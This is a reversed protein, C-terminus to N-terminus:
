FEEEFGDEMPSQQMEERKKKRDQNFFYSFQLSFFPGRPKFQSYTHFSVTESEGTRQVSNLLNRISLTLNANNRIFSQSVSFDVHYMSDFSGQPTKRPGHYRFRLQAKYRRMLNIMTSARTEWSFLDTDYSEGQYSGHTLARFTNFDVQVTWGPALSGAYIWEFGYSDRTSLNFPQTVIKSEELSQLFEIVDVSYRYFFSSSVTSYEKQRLHGVEFSKTYVPDLDPNGKRISRSDDFNHFPVFFWYRPRDLRSSYSAQLSHEETLDYSLHLSPFFDHYERDYIHDTKVLETRIDSYEARLGVQYSFAHYRNAFLLYGAQIGEDYLLHDTFDSIPNDTSEDIVSYEHSLDRIQSRIGAEFKGDESFPYTYDMQFLYSTEAQRNSIDQNVSISPASDLLERETAQSLERESETDLKFSSTLKQGEGAFQRDYGLEIGYGRNIEEQPNERLIHSILQDDFDYYRYHIDSPSQNEGYEHSFALSLTNKTNLFYELGLQANNSWGERRNERDANMASTDQNNYFRERTIGKGKHNRYRIGENLFLNFKNLRRNINFSTGANGPLGASANISGNVGPRSEKKLVINLIGANGEAEYKASPNTIVEVYDIMSAPIQQLADAPNSKMRINPKGDILIRVNESGRLSVNGEVDVSVSPISEMVDSATGGATPSNETVRYVKKDPALMLQDRQVVMSVEPLELTAPALFVDDVEVKPNSPTLSVNRVIQTEYGLVQIRLDYTGFPLFDIRFRGDLDSAAGTVQTEGGKEFVLVSASPIGTKQEKDLLTGQITTLERSIVITTLFLIIILVITARAQISM